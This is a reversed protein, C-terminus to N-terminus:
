LGDRNTGGETDWLSPPPPTFVFGPDLKSLLGLLAWHPYGRPFDHFICCVAPTSSPNMVQAFASSLFRAPSHHLSPPCCPISPSDHYLSVIESCCSPASFAENLFLSSLFSSDNFCNLFLNFCILFFADIKAHSLARVHIHTYNLVLCATVCQLM